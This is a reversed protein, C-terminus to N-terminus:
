VQSWILMGERDYAGVLIHITRSALQELTDIMVEQGNGIAAECSSLSTLIGILPYHRAGRMIGSIVGNTQFHYSALFLYVETEHTFYQHSLSRFVSTDARTFSEFVALQRTDRCLHTAILEVIRQETKQADAVGAYDFRHILAPEVTESLYTTVQGTELPVKTLLRSLTDGVSLSQRVFDLAATGLIYEKLM